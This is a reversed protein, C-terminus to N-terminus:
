GQFDTVCAFLTEQSNFLSYGPCDTKDGTLQNVRLVGPRVQCPVRYIYIADTNPEGPMPQNQQVEVCDGIALDEVRVTPRRTPLPTIVTTHPPLPPLARTTATTTTTSTPATTAPESNSGLLLWVVLAIVALVIIVYSLTLGILARERGRQGLRRIQSLAMHGLVAGAPAFVFAFVVSLTALSNVEGPPQQPPPVEYGGPAGFSHTIPAPGPAGAPGGFPASGSPDSGFPDAGFPDGPGPGYGGGYTM